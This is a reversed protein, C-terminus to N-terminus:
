LSALIVPEPRLHPSFAQLRDAGGSGQVPRQSVGGQEGTVVWPCYGLALIAVSINWQCYPQDPLFDPYLLNLASISPYVPM